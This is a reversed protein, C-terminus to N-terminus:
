KTLAEIWLSRILLKEEWFNSEKNTNGLALFKKPQIITKRPFSPNELRETMHLYTPCMEPSYLPCYKRSLLFLHALKEWGQHDCLPERRTVLCWFCTGLNLQNLGPIFLWPKAIGEGSHGGNGPTISPAAVAPLKIISGMPLYDPFWCPHCPPAEGVLTCGQLVQTCFHWLVQTGTLLPLWSTLSPWPFKSFHPLVGTYILSTCPWACARSCQLEHLCLPQPGSSSPPEWPFLLTELSAKGLEKGATLDLTVCSCWLQGPACAASAWPHASPDLLCSSPHLPSVARSSECGKGPLASISVLFGNQRGPLKLLAKSAWHKDEQALLSLSPLLWGQPSEPSLLGKAGQAPM